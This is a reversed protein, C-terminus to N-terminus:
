DLAVLGFALAEDALEASREGHLRAFRVRAHELARAAEGPQHALELVAAVGLRRLRAGEGDRQALVLALRHLPAEILLPQGAAHARM